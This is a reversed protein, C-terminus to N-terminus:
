FRVSICLAHSRLHELPSTRRRRVYHRSGENHIALVRPRAPVGPHRRKTPKRSRRQPHRSDTGVYDYHLSDNDVYTRIRDPIRYGCLLDNLVPAMDIRGHDSSREPATRLPEQPRRRVGPKHPPKTPKM